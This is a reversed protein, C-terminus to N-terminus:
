HENCTVKVTFYFANNPLVDKVSDIIRLIEEVEDTNNELFDEVFEQLSM